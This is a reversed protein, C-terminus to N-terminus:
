KANRVLRMGAKTWYDYDKRQIVHSRPIDDYTWGGRLSYISEKNKDLENWCWEWANSGMDFLGLENEAIVAGIPQISKALGSYKEYEDFVSYPDGGPYNFGKSLEGGRAAYEWEAETPLRYGNAKRNFKLDSLYVKGSYKSIKYTYGPKLGKMESLRNCFLIAEYAEIQAPIDRNNFDGLASDMVTRFKEATLEYKGIYFDDVKVKNGKHVGAYYPDSNSGMMFEGGKVFIMDDTLSNVAALYKDKDDQKKKKYDEFFSSQASKKKDSRAIRFGVSSFKENDKIKGAADTKLSREFTDWSGGCFSDSGCFESVNGIMDYLGLENPKKSGTELTGLTENTNGYFVAVDFINDSGPYLYNRSKMGGKAAYIWEAVSPLKYGNATTDAIIVGDIIEYYKNFGDKESLKNCYEVAEFRNITEVPRLQGKYKSPNYGMLEEFEKQTVEFKSIYYNSLGKNEDAEVLVLMGPEEDIFGDPAPILQFTVRTEPAEVKVIKEEPLYGKLKTRVKVDGAPYYSLYPTKGTEVGDIYIDAGEPESNLEFLSTAEVELKYKFFTKLPSISINSIVTQYNRKVIRLEHDGVDAKIKDKVGLNEGDFIIEAGDPETQVTISIKKISLKEDASRVAVSYVSNAQLPYPFNYNKDQIGSKRFVINKSGEQIYVVYVGEKFEHKEYGSGAFTLENIDSYVKLVACWKGNIDKHPYRQATLDTATLELENLIEFEACMINVAFALFAIFLLRMVRGNM